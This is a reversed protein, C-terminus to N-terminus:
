AVVAALTLAAGLGLLATATRGSVQLSAASKKNDSGTTASSNSSTTAQVAQVQSTPMAANAVVTQTGLEGSGVMVFEAESPVGQQVIFLMAPGPQFLTPGPAPIQSVYMTTENTNMNIDYSTELELMRAGFGMAHTHFGGRILVVKTNNVITEDIISSTLNFSDGGYSLTTPLSSWGTPREENYYWPYFKDCDTRSRWQNNTFDPNPNSGCVLVSSDPLLISTSHYMREAVSATLGTRNWRGGAPASPDYIAPMYVPAQGYSWGVSYGDNGYGATGMGVGNSMFMTGDPLHVFEGMSRGEFMYDDQVYAPSPDDPTIRVCSNDAQVATVNYGASGDNGWQTTASGGCFLATVAYNNSPTIPLLATAASAPYVRAADPMDPLVDYANTTLNLNITGRNAQMFLKGSPLLYTIPYLNIPLMDTLWDLPVDDGNDATKPFFEYTPNNQAATNVYGGNKDGSIVVMTGDALVEVTPYWRRSNMQLYNGTDDAVNYSQYGQIWETSGGNADPSLMRIATGGDNDDYAGANAVAVGMTTVPQNGGFVAWTGNGLVGGGACFTNSYVDMPRIEGTTIDYEVGWAPHTGYTGNIITPNNETKDLIYVKTKSALFM